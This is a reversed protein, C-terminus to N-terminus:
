NNKVMLKINNILKENTYIYLLTRARSFGVYWLSKNDIFEEIDVLFVVQRDLGKFRWVSDFIIKNSSVIQDANDLNDDLFNKALSNETSAFSLIAINKFEVGQYINLINIDEKIQNYVKETDKIIKCNVEPGKLKTDERTEGEYFANMYNFINKTNRVNKPLITINFDLLKRIDDAKQYINQNDDAFVYINDNLNSMYLFIDEFWKNTFDQGEDIILASFETDLDTLKDFIQTPNELFSKNDHVFPLNNKKAINNCFEHLTLVDINKNKSLQHSIYISIPKNFTLFLTKINMQDLDKAKQIALHTKGSGAGGIFLNKLNFRSSKNLYNAQEDTDINLRNDFFDLEHKVKIGFSLDRAFLDYIIKIGDDGLDDFKNNRDYQFINSIKLFIKDLEDSFIIFDRPIGALFDEQDNHSSPTHPFIAGHSCRIYRNTDNVYNKRILRIINQRSTLAQQIPNKIKHVKQSRREKSYWQSDNRSVIGGKVELSVFGFKPHAILFDAEGVESRNKNSIWENNYFVYFGNSFNTKLLNYVQIEAERRPDQLVQEPIKTPYIGEKIM